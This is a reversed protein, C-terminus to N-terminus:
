LTLSQPGIGDLLTVGPGIDDGYHSKMKLPSAAINLSLLLQKLIAISLEVVM